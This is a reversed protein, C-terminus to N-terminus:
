QKNIQKINTNIENLIGMFLGLTISISIQQLISFDTFSLLIIFFILAYILIKIYNM